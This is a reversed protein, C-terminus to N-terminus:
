SSGSSLGGSAAAALHCEGHLIFSKADQAEVEESPRSKSDVALRNQKTVQALYAQGTGDRLQEPM